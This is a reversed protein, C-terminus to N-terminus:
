DSHLHTAYPLYVILEKKCILIVIKM